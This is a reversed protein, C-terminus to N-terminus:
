FNNLLPHEDDIYLTLERYYMAGAVEVGSNAILNAVSLLGKEIIYRDKTDYNASFKVLYTTGDVIIMPNSLGNLEVCFGFTKVFKGWSEQNNMVWELALEFKTFVNM